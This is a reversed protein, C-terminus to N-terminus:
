SLNTQINLFPVSGGKKTPAHVSNQYCKSCPQHGTPAVISLLPSRTQLDVTSVVLLVRIFVEEFNNNPYMFFGNQTLQQIETIFPKLFQNMQPKSQSQWVGWLICNEKKFRYFICAHYKTNTVKYM